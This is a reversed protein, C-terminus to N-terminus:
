ESQAGSYSTLCGRSEVAIEHSGTDQWCIQKLISGGCDLKEGSFLVFPGFDLIDSVLSDHSFLTIRSYTTRSYQELLAQKKQDRPRDKWDWSKVHKALNINKFSAGTDWWWSIVTRSIRFVLLVLKSKRVKWESKHPIRGESPECKAKWLFFEWYVRSRFLEFTDNIM